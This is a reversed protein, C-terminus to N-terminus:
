EVEEVDADAGNAEEWIGAAESEMQKMWGEIEDGTVPLEFEDSNVEASSGEVITQITFGLIPTEGTLKDWLGDGNHIWPGREPVTLTQQVRRTKHTKGCTPCKHTAVGAKDQKRGKATFRNPKGQYERGDCCEWGEWVEIPGLSEYAESTLHVSISAGCETGKYIRRNLQAPSDASFYDCLDQLNTITTTKTM